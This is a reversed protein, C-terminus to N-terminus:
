QEKEQVLISMVKTLDKPDRVLSIVKEWTRGYKDKTSSTLFELLQEPTIIETLNKEM